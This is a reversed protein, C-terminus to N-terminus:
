RLQSALRVSIIGRGGQMDSAILVYGDKGRGGSIAFDVQMQLRTLSDVLTTPCRTARRATAAALPCRAAALRVVVPRLPEGADIARPRRTSTCNLRPM